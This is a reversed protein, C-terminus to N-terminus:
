KREAIGKDNLRYWQLKDGYGGKNNNVGFFGTARVGYENCDKLVRAVISLKCNITNM